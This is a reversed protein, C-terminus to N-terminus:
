SGKLQRFRDIDLDFSEQLNTREIRSQELQEEYLMISEEAGSIEAMLSDPIPPANEDESYPAFRMRERELSVLRNRLNTIYFETVRIQSDILDIRRDRLDEIETVSLYTDLLIRDRRAQERRAREQEAELAALRDMEAQEEATIEGEEFGVEVGQGNLLARDQNAFEPPVHDGYHVKGDDDVWRYLKQAVAWQTASGALMLVFLGRLIKSSRNM